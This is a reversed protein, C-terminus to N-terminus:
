MITGLDWVIEIKKGCGTLIRARRSWYKKLYTLFTPIEKLTPMPVKNLTPLEKLSTVFSTNIFASPTYLLALGCCKSSQARSKEFLTHTRKLGASNDVIILQSVPGITENDKDSFVLFGLWKCIYNCLCCKRSM